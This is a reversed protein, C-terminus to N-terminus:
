LPNGGARELLPAQLAAPLESTDLLAALLRATDDGSLPGVQVLDTGPRAAAVVLLPVDGSWEVLHEVFDLLADDAWHLDEFVLVTPGQAALAELLRRWAAFAEPQRDLGPGADGALGVLPRLHGEVWRAEAPDALLDAAMAALKARTAVADDTELIGAQGKVMEGLAWFTVGEGYPLSRGQRWTTLEPEADVAALLEAVLRSKGIGPAGVLTVQRPARDARVRALAEGLRGLEGQRGVLPTRGRSGVDVGLRAIPELAEWVPLPEAKGKAVVSGAARYAIARRTARWTTEGVLVGGAPALGELRAATNVVDGVVAESERDGLVVVAEGTMVGVRIQLDLGPDTGNLEKVAHLMELASRVAREPDDEHAAPAGFVAMIGDGIFKDVAGGYREVERRVRVHYALLRARVDEPDANDSQATFGVLDCFVVTVVKREERAEPARLPRGCSLCFRAAAPNEQGCGGCVSM